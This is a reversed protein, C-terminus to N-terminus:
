ETPPEVAYDKAVVGREPNGRVHHPIWITVVGRGFLNSTRFHGRVLHKAVDRHGGRGVNGDAPSGPITIVRYRNRPPKRKGKKAHPNGLLRPESTRAGKVNSLAMGFLLPAVMFLREMSIDGRLRESVVGHADPAGGTSTNYDVFGGAETIHIVHDFSSVLLRGASGYMFVKVLLMRDGFQVEKDEARIEELLRSMDANSVDIVMAGVLDPTRVDGLRFRTPEAAEVWLEPFPMRLPPFSRLAQDEPGLDFQHWAYAATVDFKEATRVNYALAERDARPVPENPFAVTMPVRPDAVLDGLQFTM